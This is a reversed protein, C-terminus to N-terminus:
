WSFIFCPRCFPPSSQSFNHLINSICWDQSKSVKFFNRSIHLRYKKFIKGKAFFVKLQHVGNWFHDKRCLCLVPFTSLPLFSLKNYNWKTDLSPSWNVCESFNTIPLTSFVVFYDIVGASRGEAGYIKNKPHYMPLYYSNLVLVKSKVFLVFIFLQLIQYELGLKGLKLGKCKV